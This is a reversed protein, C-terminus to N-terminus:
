DGKLSVSRTLHILLYFKRDFQYFEHTDTVTSDTLAPPSPLNLIEQIYRAM